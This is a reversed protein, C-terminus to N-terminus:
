LSSATPVTLIPPHPLHQGQLWLIQRDQIQFAWRDDAVGAFHDPQRGPRDVNRRQPLPHRRSDALHRNERAPELAGCGRSPPDDVLGEVNIPVYTRRVNGTREVIVAQGSQDSIQECLVQRAIARQPSHVDGPQNVAPDDHDPAQMM